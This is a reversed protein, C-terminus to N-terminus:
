RLMNELPLSSFGARVELVRVYGKEASLHLCSQGSKNKANVDAGLHILDAVMLHHNHTAAYLLATQPRLPLIAILIRPSSELAPSSWHLERTVMGASDRLDLSNLAVMRKAICYGLARKGM